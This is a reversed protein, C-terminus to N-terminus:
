LWQLETNQPNQILPVCNAFGELSCDWACLVDEDDAVRLIREGHNLIENKKKENEKEYQMVIYTTLSLGSGYVAM